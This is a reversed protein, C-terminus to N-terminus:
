RFYLNQGFVKLLVMRSSPVGNKTATAVSMANPEEISPTVKAQEFWHQFQEYPEKAVLDKVDFADNPGLYPKRMGGIDISM